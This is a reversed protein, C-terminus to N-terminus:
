TGDSDLNEGEIMRDIMRDWKRRCISAIRESDRDSLVARKLVRLMIEVDATEELARDLAEEPRVPTELRMARVVKLAAQCLESAEEALQRWIYEEGYQEVLQREYMM